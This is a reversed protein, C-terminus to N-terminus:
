SKCITFVNLVTCAVGDLEVWFDPYYFSILCINTKRVCKLPYHQIGTLWWNRLKIALVYFQSKIKLKSKLVIESM